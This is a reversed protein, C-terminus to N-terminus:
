VRPALGGAAGLRTNYHNLHCIAVALADAADAGIATDLGLLMRVMKQVQDKGARGSASVAQKIVSASYEHVELGGRAASLLAVGRAHGLTLASKVNKAFFVEEIACHEPSFEAISRDLSLSIELLRESLPAGKELKIEGGGIYALDGERGKEVIGYGMVNSGPDIGLVRM